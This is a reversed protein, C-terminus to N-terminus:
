YPFRPDLINILFGTVTVRGSELVMSVTAVSNKQTAVQYNLFKLGDPGPRALDFAGLDRDDISFKVRGPNDYMEYDWFDFVVRSMTAVIDIRAGAEATTAMYWGSAPMYRMSWNGVFNVPHMYPLQSVMGGPFFEGNLIGTCDLQISFFEQKPPEGNLKEVALPNHEEAACGALFIAALGYFFVATLLRKLRGPRDAATM